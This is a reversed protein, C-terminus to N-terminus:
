YLNIILQHKAVVLLLYHEVNDNIVVETMLSMNYFAYSGIIKCTNPVELKFKTTGYFKEVLSCNYFAYTGISEVDGLTITSVLNCEYYTYAEIKSVTTPINFELNIFKM